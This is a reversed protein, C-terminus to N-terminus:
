DRVASNGHERESIKETTMDHHWSMSPLM